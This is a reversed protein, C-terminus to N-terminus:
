DWNRRVLRYMLWTGAALGLALPVPPGVAEEFMPDQNFLAFAALAGAAFMHLVLTTKIVARWRWFGTRLVKGGGRGIGAIAYFIYICLVTPWYLIMGNILGVFFNGAASM